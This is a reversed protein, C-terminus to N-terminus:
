NTMTNNNRYKCNYKLIKHSTPPSRHMRFKNTCTVRELTLKSLDIIPINNKNVVKFVNVQSSSTSTETNNNTQAVNETYLMKRKKLCIPIKKLSLKPIAILSHRKVPSNPHIQINLISQNIIKDSSIEEKSNNLAFPKKVVYKLVKTHPSVSKHFKTTTLFPFVIKKLENNETQYHTLQDKKLMEHIRNQSSQIDKSKRSLYERRISVYHEYRINIDEDEECIKKMDTYKIAFYEGKESILKVTYLFKGTQEKVLDDCGVVENKEIYGFVTRKKTIECTGNKIFYIFSSRALEGEQILLVGKKATNYKFYQVYKKDFIVQHTASFIPHSNILSTNNSKGVIFNSKIVPLNFTDQTILGLITDEEAIISSSFSSYLTFAENFKHGPLLTGKNEYHYITIKKRLYRTVRIEEEETEYHIMAPEIRKAYDEVSKLTVTETKNFVDLAYKLWSLLFPLYHKQDISLEYKNYDSESATLNDDNSNKTYKLYYREIIKEFHYPSNIGFAGKNSRITMEILYNEEYAFLKTLYLLYEEESLYVIDEEPIFVTCKGFLVFYISSRQDGYKYVPNLAPISTYKFILSLVKLLHENNLTTIIKKLFLFITQYELIIKPNKFLIEKIEQHSVSMNNPLPYSNFDSLLDHLKKISNM